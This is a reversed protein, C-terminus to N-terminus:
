DDGQGIITTNDAPSIDDAMDNVLRQDLPTDIYDPFIKDLWWAHGNEPVLRKM